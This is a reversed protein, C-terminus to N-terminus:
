LLLRHLLSGLPGKIKRLHEQSSLTPLKHAAADMSFGPVLSKINMRGKQIFPILCSQETYAQFGGWHVVGCHSDLTHAVTISCLVGQCQPQLLLEQDARADHHPGCGGVAGLLPWAAANRFWM